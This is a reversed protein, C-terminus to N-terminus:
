QEDQEEKLIIVSGRALFGIEGTMVNRAMYGEISRSIVEVEYIKGYDNFSKDIVKVKM